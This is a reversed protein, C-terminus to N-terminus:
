PLPPFLAPPASAAPFACGTLNPASISLAPEFCASGQTIIGNRKDEALTYGFGSKNYGFFISSWSTEYASRSAAAGASGNTALQHIRAADLLAGTHYDTLLNFIPTSPDTIDMIPAYIPNPLMQSSQPYGAQSMWDSPSVLSIGYASAAYVQATAKCFRQDRVSVPWFATTGNINPNVAAIFEVYSDTQSSGLFEAYYDKHGAENTLNGTLYSCQTKHLPFGPYVRHQNFDLFTPAPRVNAFTPPTNGGPGPLGPAAGAAALVGDGFTQDGTAVAYEVRIRQATICTLAPKDTCQVPAQETLTLSSPFTLTATNYNVLVEFDLLDSGTNSELAAAPVFIGASRCPVIPYCNKRWTPDGRVLSFKERPKVDMKASGDSRLIDTTRYVKVGCKSPECSEKRVDNNFVSPLGTAIALPNGLGSITFVNPNAGADGARFYKTGQKILVASGSLLYPSLYPFLVTNPQNGSIQKFDVDTFRYRFNWKGLSTDHLFQSKLFPAPVGAEDAATGIQVDFDDFPGLPQLSVDFDRCVNGKLTCADGSPAGLNGSASMLIRISQRPTSDAPAIMKFTPPVAARRQPKQGPRMPDLTLHMGRLFLQKNGGQTESEQQAYPGNKTDGNYTPFLTSGSNTPFVMSVGATVRTSNSPPQSDTTPVYIYLQQSSDQYLQVEMRGGLPLDVIAKEKDLTVSASANVNTSAGTGTLTAQAILSGIAKKPITAQASVYKNTNFNDANPMGQGPIGAPDPLATTGSLTTAYVDPADAPLNGRLAQFSVSMGDALNVGQLKITTTSADDNLYSFRTLQSTVASLSVAGPVQAEAPNVALLATEGNPIGASSGITQGSSMGFPFSIQTADASMVYIELDGVAGIYPGIPTTLTGNNFDTPLAVGPVGQRGYVLQMGSQIGAGTVSLMVADREIDTPSTSKIQVDLPTATPSPLAPSAVMFGLALIDDATTNLEVFGASGTLSGPITLTASTSSLPNVPIAQWSGGAVRGFIQQLSNLNIGLLTAPVGGSGAVVYAPTVRTLLPTAGCLPTFDPAPGSATPTAPVPTAVTAGGPTNVPPDAKNLCIPTPITPASPLTTPGYVPALIPNPTSTNGQPPAVSVLLGNVPVSLQAGKPITVTKQTGATLTGVPVSTSATQGDFLTVKANTLTEFTAPVQVQLQLDQTTKGDNDVYVVQPSVLAINLRPDISAVHLSGGTSPPDGGSPPIAAASTSLILGDDTVALGNGFTCSNSGCSIKGADTPNSPDSLNVLVIDSGTAVVAISGRLVIDTPATNLKFFSVPNPKYMQGTTFGGSMDVLMLMPSFVAGQTSCNINNNAPAIIGSGGLVAIHKNSTSSGSTTAFTGIALAHGFCFLSTNSKSGDPNSKQTVLAGQDLVNNSIKPWAIAAPGASTPDAIVLPVPQGTAVILPQTAASSSGADGGSLTFNDVKLDFMTATGGGDIPLQFNNVITDMAFGDGETSLAQGRTAADTAAYEKVAQALDIVQLGLRYTSAYLYQDKMFLRLPIGAQTASSSVSVGGVLVPKDPGASLDYLWVNGPVPNDAATGAAMALLPGGSLTAPSSAQGAADLARGIFYAPTGINKPASANSIDIDGVGSVAANVFEGAYARKGIVVPRTIFQYDSNAGGLQSPGFTTFSATFLPLCLPTTNQDAIGASGDVTSKCDGTQVDKNLTLTYTQGFMLSGVPQLTLSIVADTATVPNAVSGDPKIGILTVKVPTSPSSQPALILTNQTPSQQNAVIGTVPESFVIQPFVSASVNQANDAPVTYVVAPAVGTTVTTNGGGAGVVLFTSNVSVSDGGILPKAIATVTYVGPQAAVYFGQIRSDALLPESGGTNDQYDGVVAQQVGNVLASQMVLKTDFAIVLQQGTQAVGQLAVRLLNSDLKYIHIGVQPPPTPAPPAPFTFTVRGINRYQRELGASIGYTADDVQIGDVETTTAHLKTTGDFATLHRTGGGFQHDFISFRGCAPTYTAVAGPDSDLTITVTSPYKGITALQGPVSSPLIQTVTGTILGPSAVGPQNPDTQAIDWMLIFDQFPSFQPIFAAAGSADIAVNVNGYSNCYGAFPPSATVVQASAGTGQVFAHDITEFYPQGNQDTLRRYVYYFANSPATPPVPFALKVEKGFSPSSPASVHLGTGFNLGPWTPLVPFATQDLVSLKFTTGKTLAGQPIILGTNSPGAVTGGGAGVAVTGDPATFQSRTVTLTTKDPTTFTIAMVDDISAPMKGSVSGDNGATLSLVVGNTQDVILITTGPPLSGPAASIAVDGNQDPMSFVLSNPDFTPPTISQTTFTTTPVAILGGLQNALGSAALTYSTSPQLAAQPFVALRTGNQSFVFRVAVPGGGTGNQTLTVSAPTVTDQNFADGATIDIEATLRVGVSGNAPTVTASETQGSVSINGNTTQNAVVTISASGALATNPISANLTGNGAAAPVVFAGSFNSFAVFPLGDTQVIAVVPGTSATVAGSVYGVPINVKYFVYDGGQTIGPLGPVAQTILNGGAIQARAIAVLYVVGNARQAQVVFVTDSPQAAGASVSLQASSTLVQGSFDINYEALPILTSTSPLFSDVSEPAITIATDVPLSGAAITLTADGGTVSVPDSGGLQGRVSERGSLIDLHVLGSALQGPQFTQAPTVAFNAVAAAGNSASYQYLLIDETRRASSFQKGSTLSYNEQVNAQIATGSPIPVSSQVSLTALSTGGTPSVSPPSLAGYSLASPPLSVNNVGALQQGIGPVSPAASGSDPVVLAFDGTSPIPTTISGSVAGLNPMVMLWAHSSFDYRVLHFVVSNPLQSINASFAPSPSADERLNFAAIPSWGLPLLGPLGQQSVATLRFNASTSVAGPAISLTLPGTVLSGGAPGVPIAPSLPTLRADLPVNGVGSQVSVEREVSTTAAVGASSNAQASIELFLHSSNAPISYRGAADSSVQNAAGSVQITAGGFPLSTLDSLVQGTVVGSTAVQVGRSASIANGALDTVTATLTITDGTNATSPITFHTTFPPNTLTAIPTGNQQIVVTAIGVNDTAAVTATGDQGPALQTPASFQVVSPATRDINLTVVAATSSNGANDVATGSVQQAAGEASVTQPAPCTDIGSLADSCSFTVTVNTTNWGNASPAPASTATITPPTRDLNVTACASNTLGASDIVTGCIQQNAGETNITQSSPCTAVPNSGAACTFTVITPSNEWGHANPAPSLSASISPPTSAPPQINLTVSATASNGARDIATGTFNQNAGTTNVTIPSTCSAIGSLADACSFSITVPTSTIVGSGNPPPNVSSTITPRTKDISVIACASNAFGATDAASGCISQQAAETSVVIPSTCSAIPYTGALCTFSVTVNTNNWGSGNPAPAVAASIFPPTAAAITFTVTSSAPSNQAGPATITVHGTYTGPALTGTAAVVQLSQPATGSGPTVSLWPQDTAVTFNLTGTGSNTVGLTTPSPNAGNQTASISITSTSINLVPASATGPIGYASIFCTNWTSGTSWTAPLSTLNSQPTTESKCITTQRDRFYPSTASTGLVAIWYKQGATISSPSISIQNWAGAVPSTTSGQGLLAGPHGSNDAYLGTYVPGSGSTPDLYLKIAGVTGTINATAPFAEARGAPNKDLSAEAAQNGIMASIGSSTNNVVYASINCTDWNTATTWTTPLTTLTTQSSTVSKCSTTSKDRFYPTGSQTGLIAIWYHTGSTLAVSSIGISNWSGPYLQTSSGHALLSGPHGSSDAYIGVILQAATSTPDLFVNISGATGAATATAPFAEATGKSNSDINTEINQNGVLVSQAFAANVVLLWLAAALLWHASSRLRNMTSRRRRNGGEVM